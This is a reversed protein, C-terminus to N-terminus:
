IAFALLKDHLSFMGYILTSTALKWLVKFTRFYETIREEAKREHSGPNRHPPPPPSPPPPANIKFIQPITLRTEPAKSILM